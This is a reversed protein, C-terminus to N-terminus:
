PAAFSSLPAGLSASPALRLFDAPPPPEGRSRAHSTGERSPTPSCTLQSSPCLQLLPLSPCLPCPHVCSDAPSCTHTLSCLQTVWLLGRVGARSPEWGQPGWALRQPKLSRWMLQGMCDPETHPGGLGAEQDEVLMGVRAATDWVLRM